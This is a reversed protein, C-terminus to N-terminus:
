GVLAGAISLANANKPLRTMTPIRLAAQIDVSVFEHILPCAGTVLNTGMKERKRKELKRSRGRRTRRGTTACTLFKCNEDNRRQRKM